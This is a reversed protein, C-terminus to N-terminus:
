EQIHLVDVVNLKKVKKKQEGERMHPRNRVISSTNTNPRYEVCSLFCAVKLKRLKALESLIINELEM